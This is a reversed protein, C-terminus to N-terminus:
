PVVTVARVTVSIPRSSATVAPIVVATTMTAAATLGLVGPLLGDEQVV